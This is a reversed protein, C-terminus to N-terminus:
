PVRAVAIDPPAPATIAAEEEEVPAIEAESRLAIDPCLATILVTALIAAPVLLFYVWKQEYKLHMFYMGVFTAKIVAMAMLGVVLKFFPAEAFTAAYIYELITFVLLIAWVRRYIPRPDGHPHDVPTAHADAMALDEALTQSLLSVSAM